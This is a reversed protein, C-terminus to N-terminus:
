NFYDFHNTVGGSTSATVNGRGLYSGHYTASDHFTIGPAPLLPPQSNLETDYQDYTNAAMQAGDVSATLLRNRIYGIPSLYTMTQTRKVTTLDTFGYVKQETLNGHADIVQTTKSQIGDQTTIVSNIYPNGSSNTTWTYDRVLLESYPSVQYQKYQSVLGTNGGASAGFYWIKSANSGSSDDVRGWSHYSRAADGSWDHQFSHTSFSSGTSTLQLQRSQIERYTINGTYTFGTFNWTL